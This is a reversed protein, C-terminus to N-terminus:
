GPYATLFGIVDGDFLGNTAQRGPLIMLENFGIPDFM